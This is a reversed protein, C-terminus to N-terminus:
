STVVERVEKKIRRTVESHARGAVELWAWSIAGLAALYGVIRIVDTPSVAM